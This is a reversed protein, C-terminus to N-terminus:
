WTMGEPVVGTAADLRAREIIADYMENYLTKDSRLRADFNDKGQVRFGEYSYYAGSQDILGQQVGLARVTRANDIHGPRYVRGDEEDRYHKIELEFRADRGDPGGRVKDGFCHFTRAVPDAVKRATKSGDALSIKPAFVDGGVESLFVSQSKYHRLARGCPPHLKKHEAYAQVGISDRVQNILVVSTRNAHHGHKSIKNEDDYRTNFASQLFAAFRGVLGANGGYESEDSPKKDELVRSSQAMAISDIIVLDFVNAKVMDFTFDLAEDPAQHQGVTLETRGAEVHRKNYRHAAKRDDASEFVEIENPGYPIFVGNTRWWGKDVGELPVLMANMEKAQFRATTQACFTTKCCGDPGWVESIRGRILGGNTVYDYAMVGTQVYQYELEKIDAGVAIHGRGGMAKNFGKALERIHAQRDHVTPGKKAAVKKKSKKKAGKKRSAKKKAKKSAKKKGIGSGKAM